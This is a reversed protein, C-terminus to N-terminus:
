SQGVPGIPGVEIPGCGYFEDANPAKVIVFDTENPPIVQIEPYRLCSEGNAGFHGWETLFQAQGAPRLVLTAPQTDSMRTNPVGYVGGSADRFAVGPYGTATCPENSRNTVLFAAVGHGAAGQIDKLEIALQSTHCRDPGPATAPAGTTATTSSTSTPSTTTTSSGPSVRQSTGDDRTV